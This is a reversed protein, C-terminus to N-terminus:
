GLKAYCYASYLLLPVVPPPPMMFPRRPNACCYARYLFTSTHPPPHLSLLLFLPSPRLRLCINDGSPLISSRPVQLTPLLGQQLPSHTYQWVVTRSCCAGTSTYLSHLLVCRYCRGRGHLWFCMCCRSFREQKDIATCGHECNTYLQHVATCTHESNTYLRAIWQEQWRVQLGRGSGDSLVVGAHVQQHAARHQRNCDCTGAAGVLGVPKPVAYLRAFAVHLLWVWWVCRSTILRINGPALALARSYDKIAAEFEDVKRFSPQVPHTRISLRTSHPHPCHAASSFCLHSAPHVPHTTIIIFHLYLCSM